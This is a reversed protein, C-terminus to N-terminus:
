MQSVFFYKCLSLYFYFWINWIAEDEKHTKATSHSQLTWVKICYTKNIIVRQAHRLSNMAIAPYQRYCQNVTVPSIRDILQFDSWDATCDTRINLQLADFWKGTRRNREFNWCNWALRTFHTSDVASAECWISTQPWLECNGGACREVVGFTIYTNRIAGNIM